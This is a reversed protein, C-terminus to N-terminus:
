LSGPAGSGDRAQLAQSRGWQPGPARGPFPGPCSAGPAAPARKSTERRARLREYALLSRGAGTVLPRGRPRRPVRMRRLSLPDPFKLESRDGSVWAPPLWPLQTPGEPGAAWASCSRLHGPGSQPSPRCGPGPQGVGGRGWVAAAPAPSQGEAAGTTVHRQSGPPPLNPVPRATTFEFRGSDGRRPPSRYRAASAPRRAGHVPAAGRCLGGCLYPWPLPAPPREVQPARSRSHARGHTLARHPPPVSSSRRPHPIAGACLIQSSRRVRSGFHSVRPLPVRTAPLTSPPCAGTCFPPTPSRGGAALWSASPPESRTRTVGAPGACGWPFYAQFEQRSSPPPLPALLSELTGAMPRGKATLSLGSGPWLISFENQSRVLSPLSGWLCCHAEKNFPCM